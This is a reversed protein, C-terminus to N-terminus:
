SPYSIVTKRLSGVLGPGLTSAVADIQDLALNARELVQNVVRPLLTIHARSAYEPVVGGYVVHIDQSEVVHALLRGDQVVGAGTDDCSTELGLVRM